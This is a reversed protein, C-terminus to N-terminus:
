NGSGASVDGAVVAETYFDGAEVAAHAGIAEIPM